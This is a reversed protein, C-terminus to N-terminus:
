GSATAPQCIAHERVRIGFRSGRRPRAFGATGTSREVFGYINIILWDQFPSLKIPRGAEPGKINHLHSALIIPRLALDPEFAWRWEGREAKKLDSGFCWLSERGL